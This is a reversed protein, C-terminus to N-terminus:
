NKLLRIEEQMIAIAEQQEKVIPILTVWLRDYEIGEVEMDGNVDPEGYQVFMELGASVLDEAILGYHKKLYPIDEESLDVEEGNEVKTLYDAYAESTAKDQWTKISLDLIDKAFCETDALSIDLKYKSASTSRGLTGASTVYINAASSYTRNYIDVSWIRPSSDSSVYLQAESSTGGLRVGKYGGLGSLYLRNDENYISNGFHKVSGVYFDTHVQVKEYTSSGYYVSMLRSGTRNFIGWNAIDTAGSKAKINGYTDMTIGSANNFSMSGIEIDGSLIVEPSNLLIKGGYNQIVLSSYWDTTESFGLFADGLGSLQTGLVFPTTTDPEFILTSPSYGAWNENSITIRRTGGADYSHLGDNNLKVSGNAGTQTISGSTVDGLDASLASLTTVSIQNATVSNTYINGGDIYTTGAYQWLDRYTKASNLAITAKTQADTSATNIANTQATNAKSTADSSATNVANTQATTAKTQAGTPTEKTTPDFGNAFATGAGISVKNADLMGTIMANTIVVSSIRAFDINATGANIVNAIVTDSIMREIIASDKIHVSDVILDKLRTLGGTVVLDGNINVQSVDIQLLEPSLNISSIIGDKAVKLGINDSNVIISGEATSLRDNTTDLASTSARLTIDSANQTISTEANTIRTNTDDINAQVDEPAPTWDTAKNGKELKFEKLDVVYNSTFEMPSIRVRIRDYELNDPITQTIYIKGDV